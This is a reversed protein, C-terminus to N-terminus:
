AISQNIIRQILTTSYCWPPSTLTRRPTEKNSLRAQGSICPTSSTGFAITQCVEVELCIDFRHLPHCILQQRASM